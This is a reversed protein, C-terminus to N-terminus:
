RVSLQSAEPGQQPIEVSVNSYPVSVAVLESKSLDVAIGSSGSGSVPFAGGLGITNSLFIASLQDGSPVTYSGSGSTTGLQTAALTGLDLANVAGGGYGGSTDTIGRIQLVSGFGNDCSLLAGFTSNALPAQKVAGAPTLIETSYATSTTSGSLPGPAVNVLLDDSTVNGFTAPCLAATVVGSFPGAIVTPSTATGVPLNAVAMSMGGSMVFDNRVLVLDTGNSGILTYHPPITLGSVSASYLQTPTGGSLAEQYIGQSSGLTTDTFYINNQDAVGELTGTATYVNAAVGSATVRWLSTGNSTTLSLFAITAGVDGTNDVASDDALDSWSTVGTALVTPNTFTNDDYFDLSSTISNLLVLGGLAGGSTYLPVLPNVPTPTAIDIVTPATTASDTYHIVEYVDGGSGCSTAGGSNTHLVVFLTTPDSIRTQASGVIGCIDAVSGLSLSSIQTAAPAVTVDSLNLAYAHAKGDSGTAIYLLAYPSSATVVNSSNSTLSKSLGLMTIVQDGAPTQTVFTPSSAPNNSPVVFLGTEGGSTSTAVFPLYFSSGSGSPPVGTGPSTPTTDGSHSAEGGGCSAVSLAALCPLAFRLMLM